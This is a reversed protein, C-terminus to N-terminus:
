ARMLRVGAALEVFRAMQEDDLATWPDRDFRDTGQEIEDLLVTGRDTPQDDVILGKRELSPIIRDLNKPRYGHGVGERGRGSSLRSLVHVEDGSLGAQRVAFWHGEGRHERLVTAAGFLRGGATEWDYSAWATTLARGCIDIEAAAAEALAVLEDLGDADGFVEDATQDLEERVIDRTEDAPTAERAKAVMKAVLPVPFFPMLAQAVMPDIDGLPAVRVAYYGVSS